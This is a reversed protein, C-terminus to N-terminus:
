QAHQVYARELWEFARDNEGRMAYIGAVQYAHIDGWKAIEKQADAAIRRHV